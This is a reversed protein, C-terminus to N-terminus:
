CEENPEAWTDQYSVICDYDNVPDHPPKGWCSSDLWWWEWKNTFPNLRYTFGILSEDHLVHDHEFRM